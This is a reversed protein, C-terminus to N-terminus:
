KDKKPSPVVQADYQDVTRFDKDDDKFKLKLKKGHLGIFGGVKKQSVWEVQISGDVPAEAWKLGDTETKVVKAFPACLVAVSDLSLAQGGHLRNLGVRAQYLLNVLKDPLEEVGLINKAHAFENLDPLEM